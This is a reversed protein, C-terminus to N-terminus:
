ALEEVEESGWFVRDVEGFEGELFMGEYYDVFGGEIGEIEGDCQCHVHGSDRRFFIELLRPINKDGQSLIELNLYLGKNSM